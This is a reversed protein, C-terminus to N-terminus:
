SDFFYPDPENMGRISEKGEYTQHNFNCISPKITQWQNQYFIVLICNPGPAKMGQMYFLATHIEKDDVRQSLRMVLVFDLHLFTASSNISCVFVDKFFMNQFFDMAMGKLSDNDRIWTGNSEKLSLM